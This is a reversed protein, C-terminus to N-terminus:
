QPPIQKGHPDQQPSHTTSSLKNQLDLDTIHELQEAAFHLHDTSYNGETYLYTEWLRHSRILSSAATKGQVTLALAHAQRMIKGQRILNFLAMHYLLHGSGGYKILLRKMVQSKNPIAMEELRYLLGLIDEGIIRLSLLNRQVLKGLVGHRPACFLAVGFIGGAVVAMMGTTSTDSFGLYGPIIIAALHGGVATMVAVVVSLVIMIALRDTLLYATAPPVILMAIVLISGVSEFAAVTTIAVMTMLLYHILQAPCGLTTALEPDFTTIKLEKYFFIVFGTNLLLIGTLLIVALPVDIRGISVTNFPINELAGYLVCGPDLDVSDAARVIIILGIAFLTTFVVGMAASEEVKGFHQISHTFVSTLIGVIIAGILMVWSARSDSVLFAIALGPLVAHSIADGMMSLRRLVMFNGLLACSVACLIGAIIIWTDIYSWYLNM